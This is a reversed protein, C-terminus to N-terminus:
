KTKLNFIKANIPSEFQYDTYFIISPLDIRIKLNNKLNKNVTKQDNKYEINWINYIDLILRIWKKYNRKYPCNIQFNALEVFYECIM